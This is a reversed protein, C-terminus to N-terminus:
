VAAARKAIVKEYATLLEDGVKKVDYQKVAKQQRGHLTKCVEGDKLLWELQNAFMEVDTPQVLTEPWDGLVSQYGPNDGGIVVGAGSAMAELLVIGFSEGYLSPFVAIDASALLGPKDKEDVFGLFKVHDQLNNERVVQEVYPRLPGDGGLYLHVHKANHKNVLLNMTDVLERVGKREVFRGLFVIKKFDPEAFLPKAHMFRHTDIVNPLVTTDIGYYKKSFTQAGSSVSWLADFSRMQRGTWIGLLNNAINTLKDAGIIHFTGVVATTRPALKIVRGAMYPSYPMQIHLVDFKEQVLLKKIHHKNSPLPTSLRNKNFNVTLNRSMSHVKGGDWETITSQGVLYHVEHGLGAYYSGLTKIYQQVGDTRDLSDDFVLGIKM